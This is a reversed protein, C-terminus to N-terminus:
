LGSSTPGGRTVANLARRLEAPRVPKQLVQAGSAVVDPLTIAATDGTVVISPIPRAFRTRLENVAEIGTHGGQLRYDAVIVQPPTRLLTMAEALSAATVPRLGWTELLRAFASAVLAEDEIVLITGDTGQDPVPCPAPCSRRDDGYPVSVMFSSGRGAISRFDVPHDLLRGLRHVVALGLGLGKRQDREPNGVQFFEEFIHGRAADAIGIGTDHVEVALRGGRRRCGLLIDGRETYRIANDLLNRVMRGLLLADSHVTVASPRVRLRLGKAQALPRMEGALRDLLEGIPFIGPSATVMGADLRSVDLLADLLGKVNDLSTELLRLTALASRGQLQGDLLSAFCMLAQVPQRLDHSAAALFRSKAAVAREAEDRAQVLQQETSKRDSIDTQSGALRCPAGSADIVALGRTVVWRWGGDAHRMRYEEWFKPSRGALHAELAARVRAADESHIREFWCEPTDSDQGALGIIQKWRHSYYIVGTRLDWDWLGDNAGRAALAYREESTRLSEEARRRARRSETERLERETAPVLRALNTKLVFDHAGAKLLTVATEEGITGSVVIFPCDLGLAHYVGLADIASFRPMSVDAIIADWGTSRLSEAMAAATDVRRSTVQYGALRFQRAILLADDESDEVVLLGLRAPM